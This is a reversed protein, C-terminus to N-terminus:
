ERNRYTEILKFIRSVQLTSNNLVQGETVSMESLM